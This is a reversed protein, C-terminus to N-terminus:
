QALLREASCEKAALIATAAAHGQPTLEYRHSRGIKAVLGHAKLLALRRTMAASRRRHERLTDVGEPLPGFFDDRLDANRFGRVLFDGQAVLRLLKGDGEAFPQLARARRRGDRVVPRGLPELLDGLKAPDAVSALNGLLRGNAEASVRARHPLDLVSKSLTRRKPADDGPKGDALPLRGRVVAFAKPQNVTTEIRLCDPGKDYMKVSNTGHWFKLRMGEARERGDIKVEDSCRQPQKKGLFRLVDTCSIGQLGHRVFREYLPTLRAPDRFLIDSAWETQEAMWHYPAHTQLEDWLPHVPRVLDGLRTLYDAGVQEDMLRQALAPDDCHLLLNDRSRFGVGRQRLQEFLWRRGNLGIRLAFPFWSQVRVYGLGYEPHQFYHYYHKCKGPERRPYVRGEPSKRLRYTMCSEVASFVAIRGDPAAVPQERAVQLALAEKDVHPSNLHVLPVGQEAALKDTRRTLQRTLQDCHRPFDVYRVQRRFLYSDVGRDNNLLRSEAHFRLRDFGSLCFHIHGAFRALFATM